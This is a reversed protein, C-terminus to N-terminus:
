LVDAELRDVPSSHLRRVGSETLMVTDGVWVGMREDKSFKPWWDNAGHEM